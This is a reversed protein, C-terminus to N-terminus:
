GRHPSSMETELRCVPKVWNSTAVLYSQFLTRGSCEVERRLTDDNPWAGTGHKVLAVCSPLPM